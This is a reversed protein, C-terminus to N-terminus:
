VGSSGWGLHKVDRMLGSALYQNHHVIPTYRPMFSPNSSPHLERRPKVFCCLCCSLRPKQWYSTGVRCIAPNLILQNTSQTTQPSSRDGKVVRMFSCVKKQGDGRCGLGGLWGGRKQGIEMTRWRWKRTRREKKLGQLLSVHADMSWRDTLPGIARQQEEQEHDSTDNTECALSVCVDTLNLLRRVAEHRM